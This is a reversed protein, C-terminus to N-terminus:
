GGRGCSCRNIFICKTSNYYFTEMDTVSESVGQLCILSPVAVSFCLLLRVNSYAVYTYLGQQVDTQTVSVDMM